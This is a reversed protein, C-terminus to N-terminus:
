NNIIKVKKNLKSKKMDFSNKNIKVSNLNNCGSFMYNTNNIKKNGLCSLDINILDICDSFMYSMNIINNTNLSSLDLNKLKSCGSFMHSMSIVNQTNLPSIDIDMLNSCKSFMGIMYNVKKTNLTSLNINTLMYCGEFMSSMNTVNKTDFSSLNIKELNSCGKFMFSMNTINKTDLSSLDINDLSSCNSFMYSMNTVNETNFKSLDISTIRNCEAFMHDCDTIQIYIILKINYTGQIAPIFYKIYNIEEDNIFLKTNSENLENLMGIFYINKNVDENTIELTLNIENNDNQLESKEENSNNENHSSINNINNILNNDNNEIEKIKINENYEKKEIINKIENKQIFLKSFEEINKKLLVGMSFEKSFIAILKSNNTNIIPNGSLVNKSNFSIGIKNNDITHVSGETIGSYSIINIPLNILEDEKIDYDIELIKQTEFGVKEKIEIITIDNEVNSYVKRKQDKKLVKILKDKILIKVEKGFKMDSSSLTHDSTILITLLDPKEPYQITCLFGEGVIKNDKIIKFINYNNEKYQFQSNELNTNNEINQNLSGKETENIGNKRSNRNNESSGCVGM